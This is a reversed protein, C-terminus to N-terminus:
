QRATRIPVTNGTSLRAPGTGIPSDRPVHSLQIHFDFTQEGEYSSRRTSRAIEIRTAIRCGAILALGGRNSARTSHPVLIEAQLPPGIEKEWEVKLM